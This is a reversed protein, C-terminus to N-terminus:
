ITGLSLAEPLAAALIANGATVLPIALAKAAAVFASDYGSLGTDSSIRAAEVALGRSITVIPTGLSYLADVNATVTQQTLKLRRTQVNIFEYISLDLLIITVQNLSFATRLREAHSQLEDQHDIWMRLLVSTDLLVAEPLTM